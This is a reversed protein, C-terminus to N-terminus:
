NQQWDLKSQIVFLTLRNKRKFYMVSVHVYKLM